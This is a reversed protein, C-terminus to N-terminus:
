QHNIKWNEVLSFFDTKQLNVLKKKVEDSFVDKDVYPKWKSVVNKGALKRVSLYLPAHLLM